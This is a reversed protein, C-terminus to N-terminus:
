GAIKLVVRAAPSLDAAPDPLGAETAHQRLREVRERRREIAWRATQRTESDESGRAEAYLKDLGDALEAIELRLFRELSAQAHTAKVRDATQRMQGGRKDARERAARAAIKPDAPGTM